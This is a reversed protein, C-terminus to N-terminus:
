PAGFMEKHGGAYGKEAKLSHKTKEGACAEM